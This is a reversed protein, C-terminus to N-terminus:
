RLGGKTMEHLAKARKGEKQGKGIKVVNGLGQKTLANKETLPKNKSVREREKYVAAEATYDVEAQELAGASMVYIPLGGTVTSPVYKGPSGSGYEQRPKETNRCSFNITKVKEMFEKDTPM